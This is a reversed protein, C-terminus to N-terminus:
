PTGSPRPCLQWTYANRVGLRDTATLTQTGIRPVPAPTPADALSPQRLSFGGPGRALALRLLNAGGDIKRKRQIAKTEFALAASRFSLLEMISKPRVRLEVKRM